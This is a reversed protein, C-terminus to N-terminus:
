SGCNPPAKCVRHDGELTCQSYSPPCDKDGACLDKANQCAFERRCAGDSSALCLNGAGCEADSKCQALVCQGTPDGCVCVRDSTCDADTKCGYSCSCAGSSLICHGEVGATCDADSRCIGIGAGADTGSGIGTCTSVARPLRSACQKIEARHLALSNNSNSCVVFGTPANDVGSLLDQPQKCEKFKVAAEQHGAEVAGTTSDPGKDSSSCGGLAAFCLAVSAASRASISSEFLSTQV